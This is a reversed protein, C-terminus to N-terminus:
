SATRPPPPPRGYATEVLRQVSSWLCTLRAQSWEENVKRRRRLPAARLFARHSLAAAATDVEGNAGRWEEASHPAPPQWDPHRDHAPVWEYHLTKRSRALRAVERWIVPGYLPLPGGEQVRRATRVARLCDSIVWVEGDVRAATRTAQLLALNESQGATRDAGVVLASDSAAGAAIAWSACREEFDRGESSGDAAIVAFNRSCIQQRAATVLAPKVRRAPTRKAQACPAMRVLLKSQALSEPDGQDTNERAPCHWVLHERSPDAEGCMCRTAAKDLHLRLSGSEAAGIAVKARSDLFANRSENVWRKHAGLSPFSRPEVDTNDDVRTEQGWLQLLWARMAVAQITAKGDRGFDLIGDNTQYVDRQVREWGWEELMEDVRHSRRPEQEKGAQRVMHRLAEVNLAFGPDIWPALATAWLLAKSKEPILRSMVCREIKTRMKQIASATPRQWAGAWSLIPM